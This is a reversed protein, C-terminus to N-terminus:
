PGTFPEDRQLPASLAPLWRSTPHAM